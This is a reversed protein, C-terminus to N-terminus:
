PGIAMDAPLHYSYYLVEEPQGPIPQRIVERWLGGPLLTAVEELDAKRQPIAAFILGLDRPLATITEPAVADLDQTIIEPILYDHAPFHAAELPLTVLLYLRNSPGLTRAYLSVELEFEEAAKNFIREHQYTGLYFYAGQASILIMLEIALLNIPRPLALRMKKLIEAAQTLGLACFLAAAPLAGMM